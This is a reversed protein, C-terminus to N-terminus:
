NGSVKALDGELDLAVGQGVAADVVLPLPVEVLAAAVSDGPSSVAEDPRELPPCM